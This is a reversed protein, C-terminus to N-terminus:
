ALPAALRGRRVGLTEFVNVAGGTRRPAPESRVGRRAREVRVPEERKSRQLLIWSADITRDFGQLPRTAERRVIGPEEIVEGSGVDRQGLPVLLKERHE